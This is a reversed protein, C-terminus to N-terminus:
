QWMVEGWSWCKYTIPQVSPVWCLDESSGPAALGLGRAPLYKGM